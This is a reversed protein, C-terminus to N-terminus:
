LDFILDYCDKKLDIEFGNKCEIIWDYEFEVLYSGKFNFLILLM